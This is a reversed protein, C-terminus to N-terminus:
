FINLMIKNWIKVLHYLSAVWFSSFALWFFKSCFLFHQGNWDYKGLGKTHKTHWTVYAIYLADLMGFVHDIMSSPRNYLAQLM